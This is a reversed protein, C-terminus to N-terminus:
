FMSPPQRTPPPPPLPFSPIHPRPPPDPKHQFAQCVSFVERTEAGSHCAKSHHVGKLTRYKPWVGTGNGRRKYDDAATPVLDDTPMIVGFAFVPRPRCASTTGLRLRCHQGSSVVQMSCQLSFAHQGSSVVQMNDQLCLRCTTRFVYGAHQGSSVVQM